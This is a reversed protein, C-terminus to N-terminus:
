INRNRDEQKEHGPTYRVRFPKGEGSVGDYESPIAPDGGDRVARYHPSMIELGSENFRDQINQHLQSYTNSMERPSDTFANLEYRVYFDDLATQLVFAKPEKRIHDTAYAAAILLEHVKRWPADYGITVTTHLILPDINDSSSYNVIHSSLVMANPITILVNKVTRVRTVLITKEVVDGVTDAIKVRDDLKFPRMYTLIVGAVMNAIISTSGLSFLLGVFISVGKFAPSNSGPLYPFLLVVFLAIVALRVIKYTTDTWEVYFGPLTIRGAKVSDFFLRLLRIAYFSLVLLFVAVVLNPLYNVVAMVVPRILAWLREALFASVYKTQPFFGLILSAAAYLLVATVVFRLFRALRILARTAKEASLIELNQFRLTRLRSGQWAQLTAYAFGFLRKLGWLVILLVILTVLAYIAAMLITKFSHESRSLEVTTRIRNLITAGLAARDMGSVSADADTVTMITMDGAVIESGAETELVSISDPTISRDDILRELKGSIAKARDQPSFSLIKASVVFLTDSGVIVPAGSSDVASPSNTTAVGRGAALIALSLVTAFRVSVLLKGM